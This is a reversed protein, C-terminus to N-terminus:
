TEFIFLVHKCIFFLILKLPAPQIIIFVFFTFCNRRGTILMNFDSNCAFTTVTTNDLQHTKVLFYGVLGGNIRYDWVCIYGCGCAALLNGELESSTRNQLFMVKTVSKDFFHISEVDWNKPKGGTRKEASLKM